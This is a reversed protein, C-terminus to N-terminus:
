TVKPFRYDLFGVYDDTELRLHQVRRRRIMTRKETLQGEGRLYSEILHAWDTVLKAKDGPAVDYDFDIASFTDDFRFLFVELGALVRWSVVRRGVRPADATITMQLEHDINEATVSAESSIALASRVLAEVDAFTKVSSDSCSM